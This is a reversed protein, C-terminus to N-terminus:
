GLKLFITSYRRKRERVFFRYPELGWYYQWWKEPIHQRAERHIARSKASLPELEYQKTLQTRLGLPMGGLVVVGPSGLCSMINAFSQRVDSPDMHCFVNQALIFHVTPLKAFSDKSLLDLTMFKCREKIDSLVSFADGKIEFVQRALHPDFNHSLLDEYSYVGSQAKEVLDSRLDSGIIEFDLYKKSRMIEAALTYVEAGHSAAFVLIKIKKNTYKNCESGLYDVLVQFQSPSRFFATYSHFKNKASNKM